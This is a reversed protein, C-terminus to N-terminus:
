WGRQLAKECFDARNGSWVTKSRWHNDQAMRECERWLKSAHGWHKDQECKRAQSMMDNYKQIQSPGVAPKIM